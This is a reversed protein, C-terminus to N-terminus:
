GLDVLYQALAEVTPYNMMATPYFRKSFQAEFDTTLMTATVSTMGYYSFPKSPDIEEVSLDFEDAIWEILWTTVSDQQNTNM